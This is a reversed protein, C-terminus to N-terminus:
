IDKGSTRSVRVKKDKDADIRYGARTPRKTEPDILQVNSVHLPAEQTVIGGEKAGRQGQYNVKTNKRILNVGQVLVQQREPNVAMVTGERHIDKGAIVVVKDGKRIKM